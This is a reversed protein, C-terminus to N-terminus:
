IPPLDIPICTQLPATNIHLKPTAGLESITNGTLMTVVLLIGAAFMMSLTGITLMIGNPIHILGALGVTAAAVAAASPTSVGIGQMGTVGAGHAGPDGVTMSLLIGASFLVEFSIHVQPPTIETVTGPCNVSCIGQSRRLRIAAGSPDPPDAHHEM